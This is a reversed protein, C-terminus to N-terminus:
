RGAGADGSFQGDDRNRAAVNAEDYITALAFRAQMRYSALRSKQAELEQTAVLTLYDEQEGLVAAIQAQMADLRPTLLAIRNAYEDLEVPIRERAALVAAEYDRATLLEQDLETLRRKQLWLRYRYDADLQWILTGKLIRYKERAAAGKDTGFAPNTELGTIADWLRAEDASALGVTDREREIRTLEEALQDRQATLEAVDISEFRAEVVPLRQSFALRRTAVMEEFTDLKQQWQQLHRRLSVLDRYSRLGDQFRHNAILHYLYRADDNRPLEDLNWYWRGVEADDDALLAPLFEGSRARTIAADLDALETDFDSMAAAYYEAASGDADLRSFAYPVALLSEQVASDLLDRSQLELWPHLAARYDDAMADAWGVGLLAKNSFPGNLRIRELVPKALGPQGSQLYAYGLALNAKDRLAVIEPDNSDIRGVADLRKAGQEVQQMRVLAVGLNFNAYARWGGAVDWDDLLAAAEGFRDQAMLSQARLMEYEADLSRPLADGVRAFAEDAAAFQGREYRAKGVYLWARDRVAPDTSEDLLRAFIEGAQRHQGYTLYLGGLLLEADAAHHSVRGEQRAVLLRTLAEFDDQQYFYFLVDGYYLDRITTGSAKRGARADVPHTLGFGLM